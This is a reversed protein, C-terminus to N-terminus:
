SAPITAYLLHRRTDLWVYLPVGAERLMAEHRRRTVILLPGERAAARIEEPLNARRVPARAYYSLSAPQIRFGVITADPALRHALHAIEADSAVRSVLPAAGLYFVGLLYANVAAFAVCAGVLRIGGRLALRVGLWALLPLPAAWLAGRSLEPYAIWLWIAVGIPLAVLLGAWLIVAGRVANGVRAPVDSARVVAGVGAALWLALAPFAPLVYTALKADALSFFVLVVCGWVLADTGRPDAGKRALAAAPLLLSWPFMGGLLVPVYFLLGRAHGFASSLYREVNHGVLFTAVYLPDAAAAPAIWPLVLAAVVCAGGLPRASRVIGPVDRRLAACALLVLAPLVIAVPGKVLAGLGMAVYPVLPFRRPGDLWALWGVSALTLFFSLTADFNCFRALVVVEPCTAYMVGALAATGRGFRPVAFRHLVLLTALTALLSPLRVALEGDGLAAQFARLVWFFPAPKDYYPEGYLRPVLWQGARTMERATQANRGEGPDWLPYDGLGAGLLVAASAVLV